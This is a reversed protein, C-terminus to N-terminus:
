RSHHRRARSRRVVLTGVAKRARHVRQRCKPSCFRADVRSTTFKTRCVECIRVKFRRQRRYHRMYCIPCRRKWIHPSNGGYEICAMGSTGSTRPKMSYSWARLRNGTVSIVDRQRDPGRRRLARPHDGDIARSRPEAHMFRMVPHLSLGLYTDSVGPLNRHLFPLNEISNNKGARRWGVAGSNPLPRM